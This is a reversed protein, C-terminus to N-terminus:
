RLPGLEWVCLVATYIIMDGKVIAQSTQWSSHVGTDWLIQGLKAAGSNLQSLREIM